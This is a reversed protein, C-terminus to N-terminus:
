AFKYAGKCAGLWSENNVTVVDPAKSSYMRSNRGCIVSLPVMPPRALSWSVPMSTAAWWTASHCNSIGFVTAPAVVQLVLLPGFAAWPPVFVPSFGGVFRTGGCPRGWPPPSPAMVGPFCLPYQILWTSITVYAGGCRRHTIVPLETKFFRFIAHRIEMNYKRSYTQLRIDALFWYM